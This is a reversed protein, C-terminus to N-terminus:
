VESPKLMWPFFIGEIATLLIKVTLMPIFELKNNDSM